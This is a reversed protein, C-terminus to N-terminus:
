RSEEQYEIYMQELDKGTIGGDRYIYTAAGDWLAMRDVKREKAITDIFIGM